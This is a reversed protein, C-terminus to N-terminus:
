VAQLRARSTASSASRDDQQEGFRCSRHLTNAFREAADIVALTRVSNVLDFAHQAGLLEAYAVPAHSQARLERVFARAQAVPVISDCDGHIVFFPPAHDGARHIPSAQRYAESLERRSGKMIYKEFLEEQGDHEETAGTFDYVGYFPICGQVSTDVHEFGPQYAADNPTLAILSCLHGGASGGTAVIFDPNGGYKAVNEKVWALARKTDILHEPFTAHPSLRYNISVCIWDNAALRHMLPLAQHNKNAVTWGGGHIQFLVPCNGSSNRARYLDLHLDLGAARSYQIDRIREVGRPLLPIALALRKPESGHTGRSPELPSPSSTAETAPAALAEELAAQCIGSTQRSRIQTGVLALWSVGALALGIQGPLADFAGLAAFGATALAQWAVHHFALEGTCVGAVFSWTASYVGSRRPFLANYPFWAGWLSVLLFLWSMWNM